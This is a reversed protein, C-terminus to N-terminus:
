TYNAIGDQCLGNSCKNDLCEDINIDCTEGEYGPQCACEYKEQPEACKAGNQCEHEYCLVCGSVSTEVLDSGTEVDFRDSATNSVLQAPTFFPVLVGAIRLEQMCGRYQSDYNAPYVDIVDSTAFTTQEAPSDVSYFNQNASQSASSALSSGVIVQSSKEVFESLNIVVSDFTLSKGKSNNDVFSYVKGNSEFRVRITHWSGDTNNVDVFYEHMTGDTEPLDIRIQNEELMLRIFQDNGSGVVQLLTGGSSRSRFKVQIDTANEVNGTLIPKALLTSDVGNFTANSVCEHGDALSQCISQEPCTHWHCFEKELCDRGKWGESCSCEYDNWTISCTGGNECPDARCSDDSKEGKEVAILTVEGIEESKGDSDDLPGNM